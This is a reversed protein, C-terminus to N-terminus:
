DGDRGGGHERKQKKQTKENIYLKVKRVCTLTKEKTRGERGEWGRREKERREKVSSYQFKARFKRTTQDCM